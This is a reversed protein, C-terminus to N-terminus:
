FSKCLAIKIEEKALQKSIPTKRSELHNWHRVCQHLAAGLLSVKRHQLAQPVHPETRPPEHCVVFLRQLISEPHRKWISFHVPTKPVECDYTRSCHWM